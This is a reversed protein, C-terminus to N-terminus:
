VVQFWLDGARQNSPQTSSVVFDDRTAVTKMTPKFVNDSIGPDTGMYVMDRTWSIEPDYTLDVLLRHYQAPTKIYVDAQYANYGSQRVLAFDSIVSNSGFLEYYTCGAWLATSGSGPYNFSGSILAEGGFNQDNWGNKGLLRIGFRPGSSNGQLTGLKWWGVTSSSSAFFRFIDKCVLSEAKDVIGDNDTDYQSKLMDGYGGASLSSQVFKTTAIQDTNTGTTPTPATPTGTLAPSAIPAFTSAHKGDLLDADLGSGSGDNGQHWVVNNGNIYVPHTNNYNLYLETDNAGSEDTGQIGRVKFSESAATGLVQLPGNVTGGSTNLKGDLASQLGDVNSIVHNHSDDAVTTTITTNASGNFSASGTVDGTLNITRATTLKTASLVNKTSDATNDVNNLGVDSKTLTVTGTKGAVSQVADTPTQLEQWDSLQTPDTGQLIFSKHLDNRVAVDGTQASLALMDNQNDVVFTDTIAIAPLISSDIKGDTGVVPVNGSAVGTNKSAATGADSIKNLTINPIDSSSLSSGNTVRGKTDVTVKPYTGATVGSNALTTAISKNASGDFTTSGTADGTLSITRATTLKTATGANGAISASSTIFGSDNTIDSTKTPVTVNVTKDTIPLATGNQQVTEIKNVDASTDIGDLKIKDTSSMLGNKSGTANPIPDIGDSLHESGHIPLPDANLVEIYDFLIEDGNSLIGSPFSVTTSSDEILVDSSQKVRNWYWFIRNANPEYTGKTLTFTRQNNQVTFAEEHMIFSSPNDNANLTGDTAVSLNAGVKIGGLIIDSAVPLTYKNANTEIGSLKNKEDTTYSATTADLITKNTHTHSNEVASDVASVSSSPKNSINEWTVTPIAWSASNATSGATLVKGSNTTGTVPVHSNGDGTPHVYKNAGSEIGSLKTQEVTTYSATTNDLVTKNSHTHRANTNASVDSNGSVADNFDSITSATQTGTHNARSRDSSHYHTTIDGSLVNQKSNWISKETDTVTRHSADDSLDSLASPISPKNSLDNYSGSFAVNKLDSFWKAIKGLSASIKEGTTLNVRSTAASFTNTLNSGDGNSDLKSDWSAKESASTHVNTNNEHEEM